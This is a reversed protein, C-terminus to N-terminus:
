LRGRPDNWAGPLYGDADHCLFFRRDCGVDRVVRGTATPGTGCKTTTASPMVHIKSPRSTVSAPLEGARQFFTRRKTKRIGVDHKRATGIEGSGHEACNKEPPRVSRSPRLFSKKRVSANYRVAVAAVAKEHSMALKSEKSKEGAGTNAAIVRRDIEVM